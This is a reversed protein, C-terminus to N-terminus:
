LGSRSSRLQLRRPAMLRDTAGGGRRNWRDSNLSSQATSQARSGSSSRAGAHRPSATGIRWRIASWGVRTSHANGLSTRSSVEEGTPSALLLDEGGSLYTGFRPPFGRESPVQRRAVFPSSPKPELAARLATELRAHGGRTTTEVAPVALSCSLPFLKRHCGAHPTEGFLVNGV